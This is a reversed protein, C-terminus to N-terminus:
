LGECGNVAAFVVWGVHNHRKEAGDGGGAGFLKGGSM